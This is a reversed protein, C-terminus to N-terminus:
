LLLRVASKLNADQNVAGFNRSICIATSANRSKHKEYKFSANTSRISRQISM